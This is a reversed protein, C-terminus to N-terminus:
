SGFGREVTGHFFRHSPLRKRSMPSLTEQKDGRKTGLKLREEVGIEPTRAAADARRPTRWAKPGCDTIVECVPM